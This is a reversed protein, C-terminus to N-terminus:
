RRLEEVGLENWLWTVDYSAMPDSPGQRSAHNEVRKLWSVLKDRGAESRAAERPTLDGLMPIPEDLQRRYRQEFTRHIVERSEEDTLDSSSPAPRPESTRALMQELDQREVLPEGILGELAPILLAQGREARNQSNISLSLMKETLELNGLVVPGDEMTTELRLGSPASKRAGRDKTGDPALWNWFTSSESRLASLANLAARVREATAGPKLPFHLTLFEVADGDGNRLEPLKPNLALDLKNKLWCTTVFPAAYRLVDGDDFAEDIEAPDIERGFRESLERVLDGGKTKTSERVRHLSELLSDALGHDFHLLGGSILTKNRVRLVRATIRDWQKLSKSGSHEEVRVPEGGRFLDRVLFSEGPRIDSVEYLSVVSSRLAKMYAKNMAKEHWGRRKLYDDVINGHDDFDRSLFDELACGWAIVAWDEGIVEALDEMTIEASRCAPELHRELIDNFAQTWPERTLWKTLGILANPSRM